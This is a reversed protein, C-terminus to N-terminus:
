SSKQAESRRSARRMMAALKSTSPALHRAYALPQKPNSWRLGQMIAGIDLGTAFLDQDCGVRMSHSSSTQVIAKREAASIEGAKELEGLYADLRSKLIAGVAAESLHGRESVRYSLSKFVFGEDIETLALWEDLYAVSRESLWARAGEGEQDTKSRPIFLSGEGDPLREIHEVRIGITESRRLGADYAISLLARDRIGAPDSPISALLSLLSLPQPDDEIVDRTEGKLRLGRAQKVPRTDTRRIQKLKYRVLEDVCSPLGALAHLRNMSAVLRSISAKAKGSRALEDLLLHFQAPTLPLTPQDFRRQFADVIRLDARMARVSNPAAAAAWAVVKQHQLEDPVAGAALARLIEFRASATLDDPEFHATGGITM